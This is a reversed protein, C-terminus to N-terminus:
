VMETATQKVSSVGHEINARYNRGFVVFPSVVLRVGGIVRQIGGCKPVVYVLDFGQICGFHHLLLAVLLM